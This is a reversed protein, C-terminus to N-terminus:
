PPGGYLTDSPDFEGLCPSAGCHECPEKVEEPSHALTQTWPWFGHKQMFDKRFQPIECWGFGGRQALRELSQDNGYMERYVEYIREALSWPIPPGDQMPFQREAAELRQQLHGVEGELDMNRNEMRTMPRIEPHEADRKEARWQELEREAAMIRAQLQEIVIDKPDVTPTDAM